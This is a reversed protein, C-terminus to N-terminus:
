ENDNETSLREGYRILAEGYTRERLLGWGNPMPGARRKDRELVCLCGEALAGAKALADLAAEIEAMEMAYPPDIFIHTYPGVPHQRPAIVCAKAVLVLRDQVGATAANASIINVAAPHTEWCTAGAAGRSLAEIALGGSGGYLDGIVAGYLPGLSSFIAEKVRDATPRAGAPVKLPRGGASGAIVRPM